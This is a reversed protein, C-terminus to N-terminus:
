IIKGNYNPLSVAPKVPQLLSVMDMFLLDRKYAGPQLMSVMSVMDMFLLYRKYAGPQLLSVMDM